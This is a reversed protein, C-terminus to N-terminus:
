TSAASARPGAEGGRPFPPAKLDLVGRRAAQRGGVTARAGALRLRAQWSFPKDKPTTYPEELDNAFWDYNYEMCAYCDKQKPRTRRIIEPARDRYKLDFPRM